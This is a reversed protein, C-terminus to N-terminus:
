SENAIRSYSATQCYIYRWRHQSLRHALLDGRGDVDRGFLVLQELHQVLLGLHRHGLVDPLSDIEDEVLVLNVQRALQGEVDRALLLSKVPRAAQDSAGLPECNRFAPM